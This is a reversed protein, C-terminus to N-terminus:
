VGAEALVGALPADFLEHAAIALVGTFLAGAIGAKKAFLSGVGVGVLLRALAQATPDPPSSNAM